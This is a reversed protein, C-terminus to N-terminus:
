PFGMRLTQDPDLALLGFQTLIAIKLQMEVHMQSSHLVQKARDATARVRALEKSHKRAARATAAEAAAKAKTSLLEASGRATTLEDQCLPWSVSSHSKRCIAISKNLM